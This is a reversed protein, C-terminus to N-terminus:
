ATKDPMVDMLLIYPKVGLAQAIQDLRDISISYKRRELASVYTRDIGAVDALAEQSFGRSTRLLRLNKALNDRSTMPCSPRSQRAISWPTYEENTVPPCQRRCRISISRFPFSLPWLGSLDSSCVDSSWDSIRM